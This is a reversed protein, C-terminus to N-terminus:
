WAPLLQDKSFMLDVAAAAVTESVRGAEESSQHKLAM